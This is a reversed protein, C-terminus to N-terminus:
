MNQRIWPLFSTIRTFVSPNFTQCGSNAYLSAIGIQWYVGGRLIVLPGGLDGECVGRGTIGSTCIHSTDIAGPFRISCVMNTITPVDIYNLRYSFASSSSFRGYGMSIAEVNAFLESMMQDTPLLVKNVADHFRHIRHHFRVVSIDSNFIGVRYNPHVRYQTQSVQFRVQFAETPNALDSAGLVIISSSSGHVCHAATLVSQQSIISSGCLGTGFSHESLLASKFPFDHRGALNGNAVSQVIQQYNGSKELPELGHIERFEPYETLPKVKTWDIEINESAVAVILM